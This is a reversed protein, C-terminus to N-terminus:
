SSGVELDGICRAAELQDREDKPPASRAMKGADVYRPEDVSLPSSVLRGCPSFTFVPVCSIRRATTPSSEVPKQAQLEATIPACSGPGACIQQGNVRVVRIPRLFGLLDELLRAGLVDRGGAFALAIDLIGVSRHDAIGRYLQREDTHSGPASTSV